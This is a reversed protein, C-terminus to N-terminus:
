PWNLWPKGTVLYGLSYLGIIASAAGLAFWRNDRFKGADLGRAFYVGAFVCGLLMAQLAIIQGLLSTSGIRGALSNEEVVILGNESYRTQDNATESQHGSSKSSPIGFSGGIFSPATGLKIALPFAPVQNWFDLKNLATYCDRNLIDAWGLHRYNGGITKNIGLRGRLFDWERHCVCKSICYCDSGSAREIEAPCSSEWITRTNNPDDRGYNKFGNKVIDFNSLQIAAKIPGSILLSQKEIAIERFPLAHGLFGFALLVASIM